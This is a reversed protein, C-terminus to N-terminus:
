RGGVVIYLDVPGDIFFVIRSGDGRNPCESAQARCGASCVGSPPPAEGTAAMTGAGGTVTVSDSIWGCAGPPPPGEFPWGWLRRGTGVIYLFVEDFVETCEVLFSFMGKCVVDIAVSDFSM